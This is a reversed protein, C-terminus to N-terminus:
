WPAIGGIHFWPAVLLFRDAEWWDVTQSLGIGAAALNSHSLMAGKPRPRSGKHNAWFDKQQM